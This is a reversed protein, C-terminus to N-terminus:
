AEIQERLDKQMAEDLPFNWVLAIAGLKLLAPLWAYTVALATLATAENGGRNQPDFGFYGILPFAIGVALALSMKTTLSWAAFYVGSRQEGSAATDIDIVDAQIATPLSLDFGVLLGTIACIVAFAAVDGENLMPTFAFVLTAALMGYAWARHKTTRRAVFAALPVGAIGCLFYLFLLPGRQDPAGLYDSVFYLFLTAPIGNALGNMFFAAILRLFPKNTRMFSLSERWDLRRKSYERPEPVRWITIAGFLPLVVAIVVGLLALGHFQTADDIGIMFPLAIAILTGLLTFGERWGAITTRTKYDGAMEAGWAFLPILSATYGISMVAGWFALYVATADLPPWFIMFSALATLPLSLAFLTRRRGFPTRIKDALIGFLPDNVADLIRVILLATGVAALPLGLAETYFTPVLIVLPLTLAALPIAPLAYTIIHALTLVTTPQRM